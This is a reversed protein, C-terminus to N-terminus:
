FLNSENIRKKKFMDQEEQTHAPTTFTVDTSKVLSGGSFKLIM